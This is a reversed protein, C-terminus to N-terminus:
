GDHLSPLDDPLSSAARAESLTLEGFPHSGGL